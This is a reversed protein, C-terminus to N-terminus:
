PMGKTKNVFFIDVRRNFKREEPSLNDKLPKDSGNGILILRESSIGKSKLYDAVAQARLLSLTYNISKHKQSTPFLTASNGEIQIKLRDNKLATDSFINLVEYYQQDFSTIDAEFYVAIKLKEWLEEEEVKIPPPVQLIVQQENTDSKSYDYYQPAYNKNFSIGSYIFLVIFTCLIVIVIKGKKTLRYEIM